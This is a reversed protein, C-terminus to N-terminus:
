SDPPRQDLGPSPLRRWRAWLGFSGTVCASDPRPWRCYPATGRRQRCLPRSEAVSADACATPCVTWRHSMGVRSSSMPSAMMRLTATTVVFAVSGTVRARPAANADIVALSRPRYADRRVDAVRHPWGSRVDLQAVRRRRRLRSSCRVICGRGPLTPLRTRALGFSSSGHRGVVARNLFTAGGLRLGSFPMRSPIAM